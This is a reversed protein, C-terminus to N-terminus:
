ASRKIKIVFNKLADTKRKTGIKTKKNINKVGSNKTEKIIEAM